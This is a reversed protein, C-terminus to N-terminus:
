GESMRVMANEAAAISATRKSKGQGIGLLVAGCVAEVDFTRDHPPGREATIRYRPPEGHTRQCWEHLSKRADAILPLSELDPELARAVAIRAQELGSDLYIAGLVAEFVGALLREKNRGGSREEGKGLRVREDLGWARALSALHGTSVLRARYRSLTGERDVPFREYLVHTTCVQLVADGLFELRENHPGGHEYAFSTHTLAEALLSPDRFDHDM